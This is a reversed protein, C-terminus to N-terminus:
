LLPVRTGLINYLLDGQRQLQLAPQLGQAQQLAGLDRHQLFLAPARHDYFHPACPKGQPQADCLM